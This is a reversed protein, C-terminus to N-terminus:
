QQPGALYTCSIDACVSELGTCECRSFRGHSVAVRGRVCGYVCRTGRRRRRPGETGSQVFSSAQSLGAISLVCSACIGRVLMNARFYPLTDTAISLGFDLSTLKLTTSSCIRRLIQTNYHAQLPVRKPRSQIRAEDHSVSVLIIKAERETPLLLGREFVRGFGECGEGWGVRRVVLSM